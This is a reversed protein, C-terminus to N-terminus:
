LNIFLFMFYLYLFTKIGRAQRIPYQSYKNGRSYSYSKEFVEPKPGYITSVNSFYNSNVGWPRQGPFPQGQASSSGTRTYSSSSTSWSSSSSGSSSSSSSSSSSKSASFSSEAKKNQAMLRQEERQAALLLEQKEQLERDKTWLEIRRQEEIRHRERMEKELKDKALQLEERQRTLQSMSLDMARLGLSHLKSGDGINHLNFETLCKELGFCATLENYLEDHEAKLDEVEKVQDRVLWHIQNWSLTLPDVSDLSVPGYDQGLAGTFVVSLLGLWKMNAGAGTMGM